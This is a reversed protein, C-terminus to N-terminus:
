LGLFDNFDEESVDVDVVSEFTLVSLLLVPFGFGYVLAGTTGIEGLMLLGGWGVLLLGVFLAIQSAVCYDKDFLPSDENCTAITGLAGAIILVIGIILLISGPDKGEYTALGTEEMRRKHEAVQRNALTIGAAVMADVPIRDKPVTISPGPGPRGAIVHQMLAAAGGRQLLDAVNRPKGQAMGGLVLEPASGQRMVLAGDRAVVSGTITAIHEDCAKLVDASLGLQTLRTGFSADARVQKWLDAVQVEGAKGLATAFGAHVDHLWGTHTTQQLVKMASRAMTTSSRVAQKSQQLAAQEFSMSAGKNRVKWAGASRRYDHYGLLEQATRMVTDSHERLVQHNVPAVPCQGANDRLAQQLKQISTTNAM